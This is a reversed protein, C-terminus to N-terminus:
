SQGYRKMVENRANDIITTDLGFSIAVRKVERYTMEYMLLLEQSIEERVVLNTVFDLSNQVIIDEKKDTM